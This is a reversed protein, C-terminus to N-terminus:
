AYISSGSASVLASAVGDKRLTEVMRDVAYGKGIGGPDLEVGARVFRVTRSAADLLINRYGVKELAGRVEGERPLHGTGKYFGWVKMLPGVSIDFAGESRRSYEVC